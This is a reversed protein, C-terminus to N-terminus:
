EQLDSSINLDKIARILRDRSIPKVLYNVCGQLHAQYINEGDELSSLMIVKVAKDAEIFNEKEYDRILELAEQGSVEPMMIDLFILDFPADSKVADEWQSIVESGRKAIHVEGYPAVLSEVLRSTVADDEAILIKM